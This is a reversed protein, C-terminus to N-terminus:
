QMVRRDTDQLAKLKRGNNGSELRTVVDSRSLFLEGYKAIAIPL